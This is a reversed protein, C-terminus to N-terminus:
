RRKDTNVPTPILRNLKLSFLHARRRFLRFQGNYLPREWFIEDFQSTSSSNSFTPFSVRDAVVYIATPSLSRFNWWVAATQLRRRLRCLWNELMKLNKRYRSTRDFKRIREGGSVEVETDAILWDKAIKLYKWIRGTVRLLQWQLQPQLHRFFWFIQFHQFVSETLASSSVHPSCNALSESFKLINSLQSSRSCSLNCNGALNEAFKQGGLNKKYALDELLHWHYNRLLLM